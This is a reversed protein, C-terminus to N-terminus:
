ATVKFWDHLLIKELGMRHKPERQLLAQILHSYERSLGAKSWCKAEMMHLDTGHPYYGCVMLFLLMGLLWVTAPKGNYKGMATYEPPCYQQTGIFTMYASKRLLDRCGFDILKVDLTDSNILLNELKIDRHLVGCYCCIDTALVAQRMVSRALGEHLRGGHRQVFDFLDECPSPRELVMIYFEAQEEWDLLQIINTCSPGKNAMITLAVEIPLPEPHDPKLGDKCHVGEYVAGFGGQGMKKGIHYRILIDKPSKDVATSDLQGTLPCVSDGAARCVPGNHVDQHDLTPPFEPHPAPDQLDFGEEVTIQKLDSRLHARLARTRRRVRYLAARWWM